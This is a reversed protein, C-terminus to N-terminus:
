YTLTRLPPLFGAGKPKLVIMDGEGVLSQKTIGEGKIPSPRSPPSFKIFDVIGGGGLRRGCPSSPIAVYDGLPSPIRNSGICKVACGYNYVIM